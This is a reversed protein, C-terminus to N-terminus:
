ILDGQVSSESGVVMLTLLMAAADANSSRLSSRPVRSALRNNKSYHHATDQFQHENATRAKHRHWKGSSCFLGTSPKEAPRTSSLLM